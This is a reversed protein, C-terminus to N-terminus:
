PLVRLAFAAVLAGLVALALVATIALIVLFRRSQERVLGSLAEHQDRQAANLRQLVEVQATGSSGLTDVARGFQQLSHMLQNDSEHSIEMQRAVTRIAEAQSALSEPMRGLAANLAATSKGAAETDTRLSSFPSSSPSRMRFSRLGFRRPARRRPRGTASGFAGAASRAVCPFRSMDGMSQMFHSDDHAEGYGTIVPVTDRVQAAREGTALVIAAAGASMPCSELLHIPPSLMPSSLVDEVTIPERFFARPNMSANRRLAVPLAAVQETTVGTELMYRQQSMAYYHLPSLVGFRSDHSGYVANAMRVLHQWDAHEARLRDAPLEWHAAYVLGADIRGAEIELAVHRLATMASIGGCDFEGSARVPMRLYEAIRQCEFRHHDAMYGTPTGFLAQIEGKELRSDALAATIARVAMDAPYANEFVGIETMGIGAVAVDRM